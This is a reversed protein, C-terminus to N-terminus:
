LVIESMFFENEHDKQEISDEENEVSAYFRLTVATEREWPIEEERPPFM